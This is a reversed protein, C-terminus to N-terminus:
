KIVSWVVTLDVLVLSDNAHFVSVDIAVVLLLVFVFLVLFVM